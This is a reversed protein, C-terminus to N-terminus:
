VRIGGTSVPLGLSKGAAIMRKDLTYIMRAGRNKAIALHLADGGRLGSSHDALFTKAQTFDNADPLVISFTRELLDEFTADAAAAADPKLTGMRADRALLSSLEVRTWHSTTLIDGGLSAIFSPVQHSSPEVRVLPALFSTDFYVAV